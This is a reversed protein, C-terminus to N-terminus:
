IHVLLAQQLFAFGAAKMGIHIAWPGAMSLHYMIIYQGHGLSQIHLPENVMIMNTMAANSTIYANDIPLGQPDTLAVHVNLDTTLPRQQDIHAQLHAPVQEPVTYAFILVAACTALFVLWLWFHGRM